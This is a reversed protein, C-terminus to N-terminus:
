VKQEIKKRQYGAFIVSNNKAWALKIILALGWVAVLSRVVYQFNHKM